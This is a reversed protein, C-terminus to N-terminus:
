PRDPRIVVVGAARLRDVLHEACIGSLYLDAIRMLGRADQIAERLIAAIEGDTLEDHPIASPM